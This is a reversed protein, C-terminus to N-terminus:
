YVDRHYRGTESLAHLYEQARERSGRHREAVQMLAGEVGPAFASADGCIYLHAGDELWAFLDSAHELLRQQVYIKQAQDRSFALTIRSLTRDRVWGQWETQYLFDSRFSREGFFLWSAGRAARASREQMFARYPAVGTGAGIMILKTDPDAPLRFRPNAQVFVPLTDGEELRDAVHGSAVGSCSRGHLSYRVSTITLHAEDSIAALSSAISYLRPALRRLGRVFTEPDIERAPYLQVLDLVHHGRLFKRQEPEPLGSLEKLVASSSAQAWSQLFRPTALNLDLRDILAAALTLQEGGLTIQEDGSFGASRALKHALAPDNPACLGLADGPEFSLASPDV